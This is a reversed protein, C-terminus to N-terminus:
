AAAAPALLGAYCTLYRDVMAPLTFASSRERALGGLATRRGANEILDKVAHCLARRNDPPVFVAAGSWNERLTRIDGLVLACGAAAAELISLGFPEYRAPLAYIAARSYWSTMEASSLCGVYHTSGSAVLPDSVGDTTGALYVPWPLHPAISSVASINKAEDWLRGASFVFPEKAKPLHTMEVAASGNPIVASPVSVDYERSVDELLARTPAIVLSAARLGAEVRATYLDWDAPADHGHVARWWTRVCSHAVVVVPVQWRLAAHGFGNLHIVDARSRDALELLWAGARDFDDPAGHMWELSYPAEVVEIGHRSADERQSDRPAPGMVALTVRTGHAQLSSALDVAYTWVGGVADATMLLRKVPNEAPTQVM